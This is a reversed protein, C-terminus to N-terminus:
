TAVCLTEKQPLLRKLFGSAQMIEGCLTVRGEQNGSRERTFASRKAPIDRALQAAGCTNEECKRKFANMFEVIGLANDDPVDSPSPAKHQSYLYRWTGFAMADGYGTKLL